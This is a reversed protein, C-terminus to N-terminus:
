GLGGSAGFEKSPDDVWESSDFDKTDMYKFEHTGDVRVCPKNIHKSQIVVGSFRKGSEKWWVRLHKGTHEDWSEKAMNLIEVFEEHSIESGGRSDVAGVLYFQSVTVASFIENFRKPDM